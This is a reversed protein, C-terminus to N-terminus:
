VRTVTNSNGVITIGIAEGTAFTVYNGNGLVGLGPFLNDLTVTNNSGDVLVPTCGRATVRLGSGQITLPRGGCNIEGSTQTVL